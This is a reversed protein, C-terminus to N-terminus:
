SLIMSLIQGMTREDEDASPSSSSVDGELVADLVLKRQAIGFINEDVTSKTVLRYVTVSKSQGIRHCRDEAQRDMQPNFDVDHIIVTDAGTLNLGQGGARTSLLFAFIDLEKNFDDVLSQRECVQTSGDLRRYSLNMVQLVWELIDLMGTWQSFILPRHGASQLHPLLKVLLQCKASELADKDRLKSHSALMGHTCCLKHLTYDNYSSLEEVIRELTCESGFIGHQFCRKALKEVDNNTYIRRVLLPHNALKRLQTFISSVQRQPCSSTFSQRYEVLAERYAVDQSEVMDVSEVKQLKPTLQDMVAAKVRRLVFPSLIAQIQKILDINDATLVRRGNRNDLIADFECNTFIAPMTFELLSWLEQLDNQLPTGTIMLRHCARRALSKLNRNRYSTRDKLLHAEDMVICSWKWKRLMSRDDKSAASKREFLSYGTLFVHFPPPKDSRAASLLEDKFASRENGHFPIVTFAPCWKELERQWNELVSAPTVILHPGADGDLHKILALFAIAQVTKGLGMEDALIAGGLRKRYLLLLFNVGVVQYPCLMQDKNSGAMQCAAQVEAHSVLKAAETLASRLKATIRECKGLTHKIVDQPRGQLLRISADDEELGIALGDDARPRLAVSEEEDDEDGPDIVARRSRKGSVCEGEGDDDDSVVVRRRSGGGGTRRPAGEGAQM